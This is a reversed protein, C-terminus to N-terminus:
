ELDRNGRGAVMIPVWARLMKQMGGQGSGATGEGRASGAVRLLYYTGM